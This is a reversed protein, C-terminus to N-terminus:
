ERGVKLSKIEVSVEYYPPPKYNWSRHYGYDKRCYERSYGPRGPLHLEQRGKGVGIGNNTITLKKRQRLINKCQNRRENSGGSCGERRCKGAIFVVDYTVTAEKGQDFSYDMEVDIGYRDNEYLWISCRVELKGCQTKFPEGLNSYRIKEGEDVKKDHEEETPQKFRWNMANWQKEDAVGQIKKFELVYGIDNMHRREGRTLLKGDRYYNEDDIREDEGFDLKRKETLGKSAKRHASQLKSKVKSYNAPKIGPFRFVQSEKGENEEDMSMVQLETIREIPFRKLYTSGDSDKYLFDKGDESIGQLCVIHEPNSLQVLVFNGRALEEQFYHKIKM